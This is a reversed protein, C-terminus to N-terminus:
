TRKIAHVSYQVTCISVTYPFTIHKFAAYTYSDFMGHILGRCCLQVNYTSTFFLLVHRICIGVCIIYGKSFIRLRVHVNYM